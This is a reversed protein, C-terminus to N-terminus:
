PSGCMGLLTGNYPGLHDVMNSTLLNGVDHVTCGVAPNDDGPCNVWSNDDRIHIEGHSGVFGM